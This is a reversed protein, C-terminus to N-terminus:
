AQPLNQDGDDAADEGGTQMRGPVASEAEPDGHPHIRQKDAVAAARKYTADGDAFVLFLEEARGERRLPQEQLEAFVHCPLYRSVDIVHGGRKDDTAPPDALDLDRKPPSLDDHSM